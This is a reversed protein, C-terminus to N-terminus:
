RSCTPTTRSTPRSRGRTRASPPRSRTSLTWFFHCMAVYAPASGPAGGGLGKDVTYYLCAAGLRSKALPMHVDRYYDHDFRAGPQHPYMVSVKIM